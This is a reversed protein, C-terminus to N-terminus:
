KHELKRKADIRALMREYGPLQDPTLIQRIKNRGEQRITDEASEHAILAQHTDDLIADLKTAQEPTLNLKKTFKEVTTQKQATPADAMATIGIPSRNMWLNTGVSGALAGCLFILGVYFTARRREPQVPQSM